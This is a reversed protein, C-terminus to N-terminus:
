VNENNGSQQNQWALVRRVVLTCLTLCLVSCLALIVLSAQSTTNASQQNFKILRPVASATGLMGLLAVAGSLVTLTRPLFNLNAVAIMATLLIGLITPILATLERLIVIGGSGLLVLLVSCVFLPSALQNRM